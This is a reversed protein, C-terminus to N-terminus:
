GNIIERGIAAIERPYFQNTYVEDSKMTAELNGYVPEVTIMVAFMKENDQNRVDVGM